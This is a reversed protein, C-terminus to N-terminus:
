TTAVRQVEAEADLKELRRRSSDTSVICVTSEGNGLVGFTTWTAWIRTVLFCLAQSPPFSGCRPFFCVVEACLETGLCISGGAKRPDVARPARLSWQEARSQEAQKQAIYVTMFVTRASRSAVCFIVTKPPYRSQSVHYVVVFSLLSPFNLFCSHHSQPVSARM